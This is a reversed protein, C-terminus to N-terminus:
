KKLNKDNKDNCKEVNGDNKITEVVDCSEFKSYDDIMSEIEEAIDESFGIKFDSGVITLPVHFDNINMKEVVSKYLEYNQSAEIKVINLNSYKDKNKDLWEIENHCHPCTASYFLYLNVDNKKSDKNVGCATLFLISIIVLLKKM